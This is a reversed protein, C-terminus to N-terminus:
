YGGTGASAGWGAMDAETWYPTSEYNFGTTPGQLSQGYSTPNGWQDMGSGGRTPTAAYQNAMQKDLYGKLLTQGLQSAGSAAAAGWPIESAYIPTYAQPGQVSKTRFPEYLQMLSRQNAVLSEIPANQMSLLAKAIEPSQMGVQLALQRNEDRVQQEQMANSLVAGSTAQAAATRAGFEQGLLQRQEATGSGGYGGRRNGATISNLRNQLADSWAQATAKGQQLRAAQVPALDALRGAGYQGSTVGQVANQLASSYQGSIGGASALKQASTGGYGYGTNYIDSTNRFLQQETDAGYRPIWVPTGGEGQMERAFGLEAMYQERQAAAATEAAKKQAQAGM